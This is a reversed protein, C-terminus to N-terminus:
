VHVAYRPVSSQSTPHWRFGVQPSGLFLDPCQAPAPLHAHGNMTAIVIGATTMDSCGTRLPLNMGSDWEASVRVHWEPQRCGLDRKPVLVHERDV